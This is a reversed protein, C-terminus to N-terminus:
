PVHPSPMGTIGSFGFLAIDIPGVYTLVSNEGEGSFCLPTQGRRCITLSHQTIVVVGEEAVWFGEIKVLGPKRVKADFAALRGDAAFNPHRVRMTQIICHPVYDESAPVAVRPRGARYHFEVKPDRQVRVYNEVVRFVTKGKMTQLHSTVQLIAGHLVRLALRNSNSHKFVIAQDSTTSIAVTGALLKLEPAPDAYIHATDPPAGRDIGKWRYLAEDTIKLTGHHVEDHCSPCIAIMDPANHCRYAAWHKMHHIHSRWNACGPNACKSGAEEFLQQKLAPKINRQQRAM